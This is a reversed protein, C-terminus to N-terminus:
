GPCPGASARFFSGFGSRRRLRVPSALGLDLGAQANDLLLSQHRQSGPDFSRQRSGWVGGMRLRGRAVLAALCTPIPMVLGALGGPFLAVPDVLWGAGPLAIGVRGRLDKALDSSLRRGAGLVAVEATM